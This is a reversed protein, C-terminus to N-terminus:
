VVVTSLKQFLESCGVSMCFTTKDRDKDDSTCSCMCFVTLLIDMLILYCTLLAATQKNCAENTQMFSFWKYFLLFLLLLLFLGVRYKVKNSERFQLM